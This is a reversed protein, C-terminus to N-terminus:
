QHKIKSKLYRVGYSGLQRLTPSRIAMEMRKMARSYEEIKKEHNLPHVLDLVACDSHSSRIKRLKKCPTGEAFILMNQRYYWDVKGDNWFRPRLVDFCEYGQERFLGAWYSPYRENVHHTGGQNPIAASFLITNALSGLDEVLGRARVEPLHEAVELCIALDSRSPASLPESLDAVIFKVGSAQMANPDVWPGDIGLLRSVGLTAAEILWAGQGCGVDVISDPQLWDLVVPLVQAASRRFQETHSSFLEQYDRAHEKSLAM